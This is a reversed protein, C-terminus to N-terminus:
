NVQLTWSPSTRSGILAVQYRGPKLTGGPVTLLVISDRSRALLEGRLREFEPVIVIVEDKLYLQAGSLQQHNDGVSCTFQIPYPLLTNATAAAAVRTYDNPLQPQDILTVRLNEPLGGTAKTIAAGDAIPKPDAPRTATITVRQFGASLLRMTNARDKMDVYPQFSPNKKRYHLTLYTYTGLSLVIVLVIWKMPWPKPQSRQASM